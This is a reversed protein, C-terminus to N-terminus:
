EEIVPLSVEEDLSEEFTVIVDEADNEHDNAFKYMKNFRRLVADVDDAEKVLGMLDLTNALEILKNLM